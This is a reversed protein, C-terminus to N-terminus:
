KSWTLFPSFSLNHNDTLCITFIAVWAAELSDTGSIVMLWKEEQSFTKRMPSELPIELSLGHRRFGGPLWPSFVAPYQVTVFFLRRQFKHHSCNMSTDPKWSDWLQKDGWKISTIIPSCFYAFVSLFCSLICWYTRFVFGQRGGGVKVWQM